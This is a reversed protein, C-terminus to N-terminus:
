IDEMLETDIKDYSAMIEFVSKDSTGDQSKTLYEFELEGEEEESYLFFDEQLRNEEDLLCKRANAILHSTYKKLLLAKKFANEIENKDANLSVGLIDYPSLKDSLPDKM